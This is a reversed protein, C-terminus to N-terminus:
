EELEEKSQYPRVEWLPCAYATCNKIEARVNCVCDLCKAKVAAARGGAYAKKYFNKMSEPVEGLARTRIDNIEQM